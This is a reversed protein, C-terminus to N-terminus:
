NWDGYANDMCDEIMRTTNADDCKECIYGPTPKVVEFLQKCDMCREAIVSM